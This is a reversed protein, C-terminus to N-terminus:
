AGMSVRFTPDSKQRSVGEPKSVNPGVRTLLATVLDTLLSTSGTWEFCETFHSWCFCELMKSMLNQCTMNPKACQLTVEERRLLDMTSVCNVWLDILKNETVNLVLHCIWFWNFLFLYCHIHHCPAPTPTDNTVRSTPSDQEYSNTVIRTHATYQHYESAHQRVGNQKKHQHQRHPNEAAFLRLEFGKKTM